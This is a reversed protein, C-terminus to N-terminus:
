LTHKLSIGFTTDKTDLKTTGDWTQRNTDTYFLEYELDGKVKTLAIKYDIYGKNGVIVEKDFTTMGIAAMIGVNNKKDLVFSRSLNYYMSSSKASFYDGMYAITLDAFPNALILAYELANGNTDKTYTYNTLSFSLTYDKAFSYDLSGYLDVEAGQNSGGLSSIWTGVTLFKYTYAASGQVAPQTASNTQGRWVYDSTVSVDTSLEASAANITFLSLLLLSIKM